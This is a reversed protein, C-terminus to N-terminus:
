PEGTGASDEPSSGSAAPRESEERCSEAAACGECDSGPCTFFPDIGKLREAQASLEALRLRAAEMAEREGEMMEEYKKALLAKCRGGSPDGEALDFFEKIEMLSLGLAKLDMIRRLSSLNKAPYRRHIGENRDSSKLLGLEEYYRVTRATLDFMSALDGIRYGGQAKKM